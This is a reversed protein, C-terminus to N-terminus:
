KLKTSQLLLIFILFDQTSVNSTLGNFFQLLFKKTHFKQKIETGFNLNKTVTAKDADLTKQKTKKM